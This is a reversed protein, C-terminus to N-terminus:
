KDRRKMGACCFWDLNAVNIKLNNCYKNEWHVCDKCRTVEVMDKARTVEITVPREPAAPGECLWKFSYICEKGFYDTHNKKRECTKCYSLKFKHQYRAEEQEAAWKKRLKDEEIKERISFMAGIAFVVAFFIICSVSFAVAIIKLVEM